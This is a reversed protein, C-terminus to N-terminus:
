EPWFNWYVSRAGIEGLGAGLDLRLARVVGVELARDRFVVRGVGIQAGVLELLVVVREGVLGIALGVM